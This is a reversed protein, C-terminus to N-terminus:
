HCNHTAIRGSIRRTEYILERLVDTSLSVAFMTRAEGSLRHAAGVLISVLEHTNKDFIPSGSHGPWSDCTSLFCLRWTGGLYNLTINKSVIEGNSLYQFTNQYPYGTLYVEDGVENNRERVTLLEKAVIVRSVAIGIDHEWSWNIQNERIEYLDGDIENVWMSDDVRRLVHKASVLYGDEVIFGTGLKTEMRRDQWLSVVNDEPVAFALAGIALILGIILIDLWRPPGEDEYRTLFGM